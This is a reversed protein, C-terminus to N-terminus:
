ANQKLNIITLKAAGEALRIINVLEKEAGTSNLVKNGQQLNGVLVCGHTNIHTNGRHVRVGKFGIGEKIIEYGNPETYIMPLDRKFRSSMGLKVNYEGEPICTDGSVKIGYPRATDELTFFKFEGNIFMEGMTAQPTYYTRKIVIQIM